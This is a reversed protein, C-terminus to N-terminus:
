DGIAEVNRVSAKEDYCAFVSDVLALDPKPTILSVVPVIVFSLLISAAGAITPTTFPFVANVTVIGIGIIMSAWVSANTTKKWFLGYLLPGIFAGALAGWSLSMLSTILTSPNLAIVVSILVFVACFIRILLVKNKTSLRNKLMPNILDIVVTSSSTLVLSSLTSMSAALVLVLVIGILMDPMCEGLMTPIIDDYKIGSEPVTYYLRGFGGMFYSIGAILLAFVTSIVMGTKISKENKIAYFKHIMQPLGLTGFSTLIFVSILGVPDPGFLSTFAGDMEIGAEKEKSLATIAETFGGKGNLVCVIVAIIGFIMIIGQIFDNLSTALYGGVIVYIATVVAMIIICWTFDINFSMAFLGSLGKYVSASYPILFVFIIISAVVAIPKSNYRKGFFDPMTSASLHNTMIRTRRGLLAWAMLSGIFANGLGIWVASIGFNWGFQGSYGVFVVASFYSTGYAFASLWPGVSRGGMIFDGENAIRRRCYFGVGATIAFFVVLMIIKAAM